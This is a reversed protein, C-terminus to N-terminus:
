GLEGVEQALTGVVTTNSLLNGGLVMIHKSECIM